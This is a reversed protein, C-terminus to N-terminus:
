LLNCNVKLYLLTELNRPLLRSRDTRLIKGAISFVREIRASTAPIALFKRAVQSLIPFELSKRAWYDLPLEDMQGEHLFVETEQESTRKPLSSSEIFAFLKSRKKKKKPPVHEDASSTDSVEKSAQHVPSFKAAESLLVGKYKSEDVGECWSLKFRPDLIAAVIYTPDACIMGLRRTLSNKLATRLGKCYRVGSSSLHKLLGFYCPIAFSISVYDGQLIDTAEEFPELVDVMEKLIAKEHGTLVLGEGDVVESPDVELVRRVMKVQSNWRTENRSVLTKGFLTEFKETALTSKKVHKVIKGVKQIASRLATAAKLGDKVCLQLTHAFCALREPGIPLDRLCEDLSEITTDESSDSGSDSGIDLFEAIDSDVGDFGPLSTEGRFAACMNSANDTVVKFVKGTLNYKSVISDYESQINDATHSGSMKSCALLYTLLKWGDTVFHISIGIYAHMRRSSWIDLTLNCSSVEVLLSDLSHQVRSLFEPLIRRTIHQRSVMTYRPELLSILDRFGENEVISIPRIDKVIMKVMAESIERQKPSNREFKQVTRCTAMETLKPQNGSNPAGKKTAEFGSYDEPHKRQISLFLCNSFQVCRHVFM